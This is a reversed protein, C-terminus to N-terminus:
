APPSRRWGDPSGAWAEGRRARCPSWTTSSSSCCRSRTTWCLTALAVLTLVMVGPGIGSTTLLRYDDGDVCRPLYEVWAVVVWTLMAVGAVVALAALGGVRGVRDPRVWRPRGDGEMIAYPLAFLPPGVHWLTWLWTTTGPGSGLIRGPAFVGPFTLLQVAVILTTFLSGAALVLLPVSATRRYQAFFLYTTVAYVTILAAQYSPVFGPMAGVPDTVIPLLALTLLAFAASVASAFRRQPRSPPANAFTPLDPLGATEPM